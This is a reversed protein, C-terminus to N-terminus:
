KNVEIFRDIDKVKGLLLLFDDEYFVTDTQPVGLIHYLIEVKDVEGIEEYPRKLTILNLNYVERLEVEGLTKNALKKPTKLEVIRYDDPLQLYSVLDPNLLRGAVTIGVEDEPSLIELVGLKELIRRQQGTACRAILRKVNMELLQVTTLVLAEFDEGITVIVADLENINQSMLARKDTSDMVVALAVDDKLDEVREPDIDIAIVEAGQNSLTIAIRKGFRGLGIVGFKNKM